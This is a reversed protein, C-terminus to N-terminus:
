LLELGFSLLFFTSTNLTAPDMDVDFTVAIAELPSVISGVNPVNALPNTPPTPLTSGSDRHCGTLSSAILLFPLLFGPFREM